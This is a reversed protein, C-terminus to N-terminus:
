VEFKKILDYVGNAMEALTTSSGHMDHISASQEEICASAQETAAANEEAVASLSEVYTSVQRKEEQMEISSQNLVEIVQETIKIAQAIEDYKGETVQVDETQEKLMNKVKETTEVASLADKQLKHIQEDIQKTSRASQEALKRIEEAVVSFGRGYEGARAAEISANLALLNTQEAISAIMNSAMSIQTASENTQIMSEYAEITAKNSEKIKRALNSLVEYGEKTVEIVDNSATNLQTMQGENSDILMGLKDLRHMCETTSTAQDTAGQAVEQITKAMEETVQSAEQCNGALEDSTGTVNELVHSVSQIMERLNEQISKLANAVTGIEDKREILVESINEKLNYAAILNASEVVQNLPNVISRATIHMVVVGFIIAVVLVISSVVQVSLINNAIMQTSEAKSVGTFLLGIIENNQNTLPEYVTLYDKGMIDAHGIYRNGGNVAEIVALNDLLTNELRQGNEDVISTNIRVYDMGQKVFITAVIDLDESLDDIMEYQNRISQGNADILENGELNIEGFYQRIYVKSASISEELKSTLLEERVTNMGRVANTIGIINVILIPIIGTIIFLITLKTKQKNNKM